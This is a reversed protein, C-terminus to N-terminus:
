HQVFDYKMPFLSSVPRFHPFRLTIIFINNYAGNISVTSKVGLEQIIVPVTPEHGAILVVSGKHNKKIDDILKGINSYINIPVKKWDAYNNVTEKTRTTDTSYVVSVGLMNAIYKLTEARREGDKTLPCTQDESSPWNTDKEAHRVVIVTTTIPPRPQIIIGDSPSPQAAAREEGNVASVQQSFFFAALFFVMYIKM